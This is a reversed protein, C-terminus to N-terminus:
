EIEISGNSTKVFLDAYPEGVTGSLRNQEVTRNSVDVFTEILGDKAELDLRVNAEAGLEVIVSGNSTQLRSATGDLFGGAFEINGNSASGEFGGLVEDFFLNGNVTKLEFLGTVDELRLSGNSTELTGGTGVGLSIISGNSSALALEANAPALVRITAGPEPRIDRKGPKAIINVGSSEREVRYDIDDPQRLIAEIEITQTESREITIGGNFTEIALKYPTQIDLSHTRTVSEEEVFIPDCAVLVLVALMLSLLRKPGVVSM